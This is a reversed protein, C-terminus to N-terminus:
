ASVPCGASRSGARKTYSYQINTRTNKQTHLFYLFVSRAGFKM